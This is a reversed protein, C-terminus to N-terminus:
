PDTVEFITLGQDYNAVLAYIKHRIEITSIGM